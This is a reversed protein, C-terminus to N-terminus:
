RATPRRGSWRWLVPAVALLAVALVTVVGHGVRGATIGPSPDLVHNAWGNAVADAVLVTTALVVGARLRLWVLVVVLPDLVLLAAFFAALWGPLPVTPGGVGLAQVVHVLSGWTFVLLVAAAAWRM